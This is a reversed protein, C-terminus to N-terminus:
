EKIFRESVRKPSGNAYLRLIDAFSVFPKGVFTQAEGNIDSDVFHGCSLWVGYFVISYDQPFESFLANGKILVLLQREFDDMDSVFFPRMFTDTKSDRIGFCIQAGKEFEWRLYFRLFDDYALPASTKTKPM